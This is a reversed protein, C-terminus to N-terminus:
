SDSQMIVIPGYGPFLSADCNKARIGAETLASLDAAGFKSGAFYVVRGGAALLPSCLVWSTLPNALARALCVDGRLSSGQARGHEVTVNGLELASVAMELFAVRSERPELLIVSLDPRAVAVPIGPLGGGSGVDLVVREGSGLCPLVRLSDLVHRTRLRELDGKAVVGRSAGPGRLLEEFARLSAQQGETLGDALAEPDLKM